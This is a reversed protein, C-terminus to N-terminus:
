PERTGHVMWGVLRSRMAETYIGTFTLQLEAGTIQADAPLVLLDFKILSFHNNPHGVWLHGRGFNTNPSGSQTRADDTPYLEATNEVAQAIPRTSPAAQLAVTSTISAWLLAISICLVTRVYKSQPYM